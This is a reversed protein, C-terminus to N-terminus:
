NFVRMRIKFHPLRSERFVCIVFMFCHIFIISMSFYVCNRILSTCPSYFTYIESINDVYLDYAHSIMLNVLHQFVYMKIYMKSFYYENIQIIIWFASIEIFVVGPSTEGIFISNEQSRHLCCRSQKISIKSLNLVYM